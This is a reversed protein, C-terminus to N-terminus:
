KNTDLTRVICILLEYTQVSYPHTRAYRVHKTRTSRTTDFLSERETERGKRGERGGERVLGQYETSELVGGGEEREM